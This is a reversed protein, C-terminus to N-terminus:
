DYSIPLQFRHLTLFVRGRTHIHLSVWSCSCLSKRTSSRHKSRRPFWQFAGRLISTAHEFNYNINPDGHFGFTIILTPAGLHIEGAQRIPLSGSQRWWSPSPPDKGQWSQFLISSMVIHGSM